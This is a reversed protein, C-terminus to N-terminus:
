QESSKNQQSKTKNSLSFLQPLSGSSSNEPKSGLYGFGPALFEQRTRRHSDRPQGMMQQTGPHANYSALDSITPRSGPCSERLICAIWATVYGSHPLWGERHKSKLCIYNIHNNPQHRCGGVSYTEQVHLSATVAAFGKM